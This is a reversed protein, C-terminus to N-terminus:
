YSLLILTDQTTAASEMCPWIGGMIELQASSNHQLFAPISTGVAHKHKDVRISLESYQMVGRVDCASGAHEAVSWVIWCVAWFLLFPTGCEVM